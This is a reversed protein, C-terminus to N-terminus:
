ASATRWSEAGTQQGAGRNDPEYNGTRTSARFTAKALEALRSLPVRDCFSNHLSIRPQGNVTLGDCLTQIAAQGSATLRNVTTFLELQVRGYKSRPTQREFWVMPVKLRWCWLGFAEIVKQSNRCRADLYGKERACDLRRRERTSFGTGSQSPSSDSRCLVVANPMVNRSFARLRGDEPILLVRSGGLLGGLGFRWIVGTDDDRYFPATTYPRSGRDTRCWYCDTTALARKGQAVGEQAVETGRARCLIAAPRIRIAAQVGRRESRGDSPLKEAFAIPRRLHRRRDGGVVGAAVGSDATDPLVLM